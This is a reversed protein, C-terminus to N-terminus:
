IKTWTHPIIDTEDRVGDKFWVKPAIVIKNKHKSLWAGWWAFTSNSIVFHKCLSMLYLHAHHDNTALDDTIFTTKTEFNLNQKCWEIDDSFIFLEDITIKETILAVGKMYYQNSQSGLMKNYTPNTIYDGRRIHICITNKTNIYDGLDTIVKPFKKKFEFEKRITDAISEFYKESQFLGVLCCDNPLEFFKSNYLHTSEIYVSPKLIYKQIKNLIRKLISTPLPNYYEIIKKSAFNEKINFAYLEYDRFVADILPTRDQLLTLDFFVETNHKLALARAAAYQFLQNGLGGKLRVIIM